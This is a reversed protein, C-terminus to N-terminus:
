GIEEKLHRNKNIGPNESRWVTTGCFIYLLTSM